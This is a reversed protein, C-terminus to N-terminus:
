TNVFILVSEARHGKGLERMALVQRYNILFPKM